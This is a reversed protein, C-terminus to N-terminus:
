LNKGNQVDKWEDVIGRYDEPGYAGFIEELVGDKRHSKLGLDRLLMDVYPIADFVFDPVRAGYGCPARWKGFQSHLTTEWDMAEKSQPVRDLKRDFYASIWLAQTQAIIATTITTTMGAFVLNRVECTSPPVMFRYLRFPRNTGGIKESVKSINDLNPQDRLRPFLKLIESDAKQALKDPEDSYFPLGLQEDSTSGGTFEIPPHAKWGTACVLIDAPLTEGTSLHVTKESLHTVDAVYIKIQHNRVLDFFDTPYNLISLGSGIWFASNWPKLKMLEPDKDYGNADVIDQALIKWFTNVISRGLVTRHFFSRIRPYGDESAWICPSFWTLFRTHVLKELWKKLPTVYAPAMWAPGHGNKRIIMNVIAGQSAYAYAADWASKAGGLVNVHNATELTDEHALFQSTHFIPAGFKESGPLTPVFPASTLGTAVILKKTFLQSDGNNTRIKLIWGEERGPEVTMVKSNFRIREFFGFHHTYDTLYRHLISAPIHQGEEVGYTAGDMPFDGYEYTGLMNNSKLGPYLRQEAWVGGVTAGAELIIVNESPHLEIYTKAAALGFWGTGVVVLDVEDEM